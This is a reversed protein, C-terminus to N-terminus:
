ANRFSWKAFKEVFEVVARVRFAHDFVAGWSPIAEGYARRVDPHEKAIIESLSQAVDIGASAHEITVLFVLFEHREALTYGYNMNIARSM